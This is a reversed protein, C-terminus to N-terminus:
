ALPRLNGARTMTIVPDNNYFEDSPGMPTEDWL